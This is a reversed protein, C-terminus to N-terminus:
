QEDAELRLIELACDRRGLALDRSPVLLLDIREGLEAVPDREPREEAAVVGGGDGCPLGDDVLIRTLGVRQLQPADVELVDAIERARERVAGM